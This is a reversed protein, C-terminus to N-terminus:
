MHVRDIKRVTEANGHMNHVCVYRTLLRSSFCHDWKKKQLVLVVVVMGCGLFWISDQEKKSRHNDGNRLLLLISFYAQLCTNKYKYPFIHLLIGFLYRTVLIFM